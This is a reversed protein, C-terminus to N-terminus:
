GGRRETNRVHAVPWGKFDNDVGVVVVRKRWKFDVVGNLWKDQCRVVVVFM